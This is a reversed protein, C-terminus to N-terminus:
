PAGRTCPSLLPSYGHAALRKKRSIGDPHVCVLIHGRHARRKAFLGHDDTALPRKLRRLVLDERRDLAGGDLDRAYVPVAALSRHLVDLRQPGSRLARVHDKRHAAALGDVGALHQRVRQALGEEGEGGDGRGASPMSYWGSPLRRSYLKELIGGFWMKMSGCIMAFAGSM